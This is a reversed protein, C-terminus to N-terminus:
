ACSAPSKEPSKIVTLLNVLLVVGALAHSTQLVAMIAEHLDKPIEEQLYKNAISPVVPHM